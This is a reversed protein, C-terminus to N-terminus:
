EDRRDMDFTATLGAALALGCTLRNGAAVEVLDDCLDGRSGDTPCLRPAGLGM